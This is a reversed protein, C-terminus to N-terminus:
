GILAWINFDADENSVSYIGGSDCGTCTGTIEVNGDFTHCHGWCQHEKACRTWRSDTNARQQKFHGRRNNPVRICYWRAVPVAHGMRNLVTSFGGHHWLLQSIHFISVWFLYTQFWVRLHDVLTNGLKLWSHAELSESSRQGLGPTQPLPPWQWV